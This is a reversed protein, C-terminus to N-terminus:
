RLNKKFMQYTQKPEPAQQLGSGVVLINAGAKVIAKINDLKVGGDVEINLDPYTKRLSAIKKLVSKQFLQGQKGPVIGMIQITDFYPIIKKIQQPTNKLDLALGSKIKKKQLFDQLCLISAPDIDAQYHWIIKKVNKLKTWTSFYSGLDKVMLHIELHHHASLSKIQRPEINNKTKVLVGDMIDVQITKSLPAVKQWQKKFGTFNTALIAPIIQVTKM